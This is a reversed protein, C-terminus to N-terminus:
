RKPYRHRSGYSLIRRSPRRGKENGNFLGSLSLDPKPSSVNKWGGKPQLSSPCSQVHRCSKWFLGDSLRRERTPLYRNIGSWRYRHLNCIRRNRCKCQSNAKWQTQWQGFRRYKWKGTETPWSHGQVAQGDSRRSRVPRLTDGLSKWHTRNGQRHTRTQFM